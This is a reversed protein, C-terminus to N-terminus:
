EENQHTKRRPPDPVRFAPGDILQPLDQVAKTQPNHEPQFPRGTTPYRTSALSPHLLSKM